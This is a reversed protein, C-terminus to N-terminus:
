PMVLEITGSVSVRVVSEGAEVAVASDAEMAAMRAKYIVPPQQAATGISITVIRYGGAKLNNSVIQARSKFAELAVDILRNEVAERREDSVTFNM